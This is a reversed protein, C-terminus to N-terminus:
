AFRMAVGFFDHFLLGFGFLLNKAREASEVAALLRMNAAPETEASFNRLVIKRLM